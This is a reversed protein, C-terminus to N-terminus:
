GSKGISFHCHYHNPKPTLYSWIAWHDKCSVKGRVLYYYVGGPAGGASETKLAEQLFEQAKEVGLRQVVLEIQEIAEPNTEQLQQASIKPRRSQIRHQDSLKDPQDM